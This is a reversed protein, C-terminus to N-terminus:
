YALLSYAWERLLMGRNIKCLMSQSDLSHIFSHKQGTIAEIQMMMSCITIDAARTREEFTKGDFYVTISGVVKIDEASVTVPLSLTTRHGLTTSFSIMYGFSLPVMHGTVSAFQGKDSLTM